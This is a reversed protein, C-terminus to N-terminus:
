DYNADVDGDDDNCYLMSYCTNIVDQGKYYDTKSDDWPTGCVPGGWREAIMLITLIAM